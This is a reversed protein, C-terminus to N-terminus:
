DEEAIYTPANKPSKGKIVNHYYGYTMAQEDKLNDAEMLEALFVTHTSTEMRDTVKGVLYGVSDDIVPMTGKISYKIGEFKDTDKSSYYGFKGIIGPDTNESLISISIYGSDKICQNTYNDHNISLMVTAPSSTIQMVSNAVCGVPRGKDWTSIIYVGYSLNRLAKSNM